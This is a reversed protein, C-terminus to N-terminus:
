EVLATLQAALEEARKVGQNTLRYRGGKGQGAKLVLREKLYGALVRDLRAVPCGSQRLAETLRTVAVEEEGRLERHGLLVLLAADAQRHAGEPRVKLSVTRAQPDHRLWARPRARHEAEAVDSERSEAPLRGIGIGQVM